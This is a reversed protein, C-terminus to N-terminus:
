LKVAKPKPLNEPKLLFISWNYKRTMKALIRLKWIEVHGETETWEHISWEPELIRQSITKRSARIKDLVFKMVEPQVTIELADGITEQKAFQIIKYLDALIQHAPHGGGAWGEALELLEEDKVKPLEHYRPATLVLDVMAIREGPGLRKWHDMGIINQIDEIIAARKSFESM